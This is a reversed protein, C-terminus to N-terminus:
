LSVGLRDAVRQLTAMCVAIVVTAGALEKQMETRVERLARTVREPDIKEVTM